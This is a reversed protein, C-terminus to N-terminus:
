TQAGANELAPNEVRIAQWLLDALWTTPLRRVDQEMECVVHYFFLYSWVGGLFAAARRRWRDVCGAACCVAALLAIGTVSHALKWTWESANVLLALGVAAFTVIAFLLKLTFRM